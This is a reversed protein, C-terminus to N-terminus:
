EAVDIMPRIRSFAASTSSPSTTTVPPGSEMYRIVAESLQHKLEPLNSSDVSPIDPIAAEELFPLQPGSM